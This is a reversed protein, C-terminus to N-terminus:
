GGDEELMCNVYVKGGSYGLDLYEGSNSCVNSNFVGFLGDPVQIEKDCLLIRKLKTCGVFVGNYERGPFIPRGEIVVETLESCYEFAGPEITRVSSPIVVRKVKSSKNVYRPLHSISDPFRLEELSNGLLASSELRMISNPLVVKTFETNSLAFDQLYTVSDPIVLTGTDECRQFANSDIVQVVNPVLGFDSYRLHVAGLFKDTYVDIRPDKYALRYRAIDINVIDIMRMARIDDGIVGYIKVRKSMKLTDSVSHWEAVGDITDIILCKDKVIRHIFFM